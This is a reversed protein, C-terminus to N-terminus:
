TKGRGFLLHWDLVSREQFRHDWDSPKAFFEGITRGQDFIRVHHDADIQYDDV